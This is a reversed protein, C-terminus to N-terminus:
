ALLKKVYNPMSIDVYGLAYNWTLTVGCYLTGSWDIDLAYHQEQLADILHHAHEAGVYKIGFDDVILSFHIPCTVHRM